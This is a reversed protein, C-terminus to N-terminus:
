VAKEKLIRAPAESLRSRRGSTEKKIIRVKRPIQLAYEAPRGLLICCVHRM